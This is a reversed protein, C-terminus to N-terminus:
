TDTTVEDWTAYGRYGVLWNLAKHREMLASHSLWACRPSGDLNPKSAWHLRYTLDTQDLLEDVPRLEPYVQALETPSPMLPAVAALTLGDTPFGLEVEAGLAWLLTAAADLQWWADAREQDSPERAGELLEREEASVLDLAGLKGLQELADWRHQTNGRALLSSVYLLAARAHVAEVPRVLAEDKGEIPPMHEVFPVGHLALIAESREKRQLRPDHEPMNWPPGSVSVSQPPGEQTALKALAAEIQRVRTIAAGAM